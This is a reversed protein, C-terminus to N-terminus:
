RTRWRIGRLKTLKLMKELKFNIEFKRDYEKMWEVGVLKGETKAKREDDNQLSEDGLRSSREFGLELEEELIESELMKDHSEFTKKQLEKEKMKEWLRGKTFEFDPLNQGQRLEEFEENFNRLVNEVAELEGKFRAIKTRAASLGDM